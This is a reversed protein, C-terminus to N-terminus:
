QAPFPLPTLRGPVSPFLVSVGVGQRHKPYAAILSEIVDRKQLLLTQLVSGLREHALAGKTTRNQYSRNRLIVHPRIGREAANNDPPV